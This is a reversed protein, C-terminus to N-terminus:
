TPRGPKTGRLCRSRRRATRWANSTHRRNPEFLGSGPPHISPDLRPSKTSPTGRRGLARALPRCSLPQSGISADMQHDSAASSPSLRPVGGFDEGMSGRTPRIARIEGIECTSILLARTETLTYFRFYTCLSNGREEEGLSCGTAIGRSTDCGISVGTRDGWFIGQYYAKM